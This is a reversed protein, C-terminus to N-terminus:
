KKYNEVDTWSSFPYTLNDTDDSKKQTEASSLAQWEKRLSALTNQTGTFGIDDKKTEPLSEVVPEAYVEPKNEEGLGYKDNDFVPEERKETPETQNGFSRELALSFPDKAAPTQTETAEKAAISTIKSFFQNVKEKIMPKEPQYAKIAEQVPTKVEPAKVEEDILNEEKAIQTNERKRRAQDAIPALIAFVKGFVGTEIINLLVREKDHKELLGLLTQYRACFEMITGALLTDVMADDLIKRQFNPQQNYNEIVVKGFSWKGGNQVKTWLHEIQDISSLRERILFESLLENMDAILLDFRNLAFSNKINQETELMIRALLDSYEQNKKMQGFLRFMQRSMSRNYIYQNVFAFIIWILLIPLSVFLVYLLVNLIGADFFSMGSLSDIVFRLAYALWVLSSFVAAVLSFTLM